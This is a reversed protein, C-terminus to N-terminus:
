NMRHTCLDNQTSHSYAFQFLHPHARLRRTHNSILVALRHQTSFLFQSSLSAESQTIRVWPIRRAGQWVVGVVRWPQVRCVCSSIQDSRATIIPISVVQASPRCIQNVTCNRRPKVQRECACNPMKMAWGPGSPQGIRGGQRSTISPNSVRRRRRRCGACSRRLSPRPPQEANQTQQTSYSQRDPYPM